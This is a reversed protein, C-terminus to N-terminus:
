FRNFLLFLIYMSAGTITISVIKRSARSYKGTHVFHMGNVMQLHSRYGKTTLTTDLIEVVHVLKYSPLFSFM